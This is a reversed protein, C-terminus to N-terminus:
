IIGSYGIIDWVIWGLGGCCGLGFGVARWWQGAHRKGHGNGTKGYTKGNLGFGAWLGVSAGVASFRWLGAYMCKKYIYLLICKLGNFFRGLFVM